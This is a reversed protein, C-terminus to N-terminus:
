EVIICENPCIAMCVKCNRCVQADRVLIKDDTLILVNNTCAIICKECLDCNDTIIKIHCEESKEDKKKKFFSGIGM